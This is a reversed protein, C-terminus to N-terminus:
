MRVHTEIHSVLRYCIWCSLLRSSSGRTKRKESATTSKYLEEQEKTRWIRRKLHAKDVMRGYMHLGSCVLLAVSSYSITALYHVFMCSRRKDLVVCIRIDNQLCVAIQVSFSSSPSATSVQLFRNWPVHVWKEHAIIHM